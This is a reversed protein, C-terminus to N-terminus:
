VMIITPLTDGKNNLKIESKELVFYDANIDRAFNELDKLVEEVSATLLNQYGAKRQKWRGAM